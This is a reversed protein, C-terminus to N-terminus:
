GLITCSDPSLLLQASVVKIDLSFFILKLFGGSSSRTSSVEKIPVTVKPPVDYGVKLCPCGSLVDESRVRRMGGESRETARWQSSGILLCLTLIRYAEGKCTVQSPHLTSRSPCVHSLWACFILNKVTVHIWSFVSKDTGFHQTIYIVAKICM